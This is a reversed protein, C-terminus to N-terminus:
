YAGQLYNDLVQIQDPVRGLDLIVIRDPRGDFELSTGLVILIRTRSQLVTWSNDMYQISIQSAKNSM